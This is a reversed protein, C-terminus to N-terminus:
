RPNRSPRSRLSAHQGAFVPTSAKPPQPKPPRTTDDFLWGQVTTVRCHLEAKLDASLDRAEQDTLNLRLVIVWDTM